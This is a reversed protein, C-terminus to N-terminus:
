RLQRMLRTGFDNTAVSIGFAIYPSLNTDSKLDSATLHMM